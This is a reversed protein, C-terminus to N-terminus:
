PPPPRGLTPHCRPSYFRSEYIAREFVHRWSPRRQSEMLALPAECRPCRPGVSEAAEPLAPEPPATEPQSHNQVAPLLERCCQLYAARKGGHYGGYCRTKTFGKPLIHLTWRQMFQRGSLRHPRSAHMDGRRKTSPDSRKPRAWFVVEREDATIIRRDSIPGGTLYSALYKIVDTPDSRGQPPGQIFVNWDTEELEQLWQERQAKAMLLAVSGGVKLKGQHLLRRLGRMYHERFARGLEVNNTL